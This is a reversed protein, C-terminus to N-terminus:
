TYSRIEERLKECNSCETECENEIYESPCCKESGCGAYDEIIMARCHHKKRQLEILDCIEESYNEKMTGDEIYIDDDENYFSYIEKYHGKDDTTRVSEWIDINDDNIVLSGEVQKVFPIKYSINILCDAKKETIYTEYRVYLVHTAKKYSM